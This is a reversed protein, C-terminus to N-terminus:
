TMIVTMGLLSAQRIVNAAIAAIAAVLAGAGSEGREMGSGGISGGSLGGSRAGGGEVDGGYADAGGSGNAGGDRGVGAGGVGGGGALTEGAPVPRRQGKGERRPPAPATDKPASAGVEGYPGENSERKPPLTRRRPEEEGYPDM